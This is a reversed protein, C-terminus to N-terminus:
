TPVTEVTKMKGYHHHTDPGEPLWSETVLHLGISVSCHLRSHIESHFWAVMLRSSQGTTVTFDKWKRPVMMKGPDATPLEDFCCM